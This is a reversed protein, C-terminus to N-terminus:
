KFQGEALIIAHDGHCDMCASDAQVYRGNPRRRGDWEEHFAEVKEPYKHKEHCQRCFAEVEARM